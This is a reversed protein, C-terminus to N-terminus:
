ELYKPRRRRPGKENMNPGIGLRKLVDPAEPDVELAYDYFSKGTKKIHFENIQDGKKQWTSIDFKDEVSRNNIVHAKNAMQSLKTFNGRIKPAMKVIVDPDVNRDRAANRLLAVTLPVTVWVISTNYGYSSALELQREMKQLNKGTGDVLVPDGTELAAELYATTMDSSMQHVYGPNDEDYGALEEKYVDPNVQRWYSPVEEIPSSFIVNELDQVERYIEPPLETKWDRKAVEQQGRSGYTYLRFPIRARTPDVLEIDYGKRKLNKVSTEFSINSLSREALPLRKEMMKELRKRETVGDAGGGPMYKLYKNEAVFSKGSGATGMMFIAQYRLNSPNSLPGAVKVYQFYSSVIKKAIRHARSM